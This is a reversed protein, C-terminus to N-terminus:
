ARDEVLVQALDRRPLEEHPGTFHAEQSTEYLVRAGHEVAWLELRAPKKWEISPSGAPWSAHFNGALNVFRDLVGNVIRRGAGDSPSCM